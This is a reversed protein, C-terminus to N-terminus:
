KEGEKKPTAIKFLHALPSALRPYLVYIFFLFLGINVLASGIRLVLLSAVSGGQLFYLAYAMFVCDIVIGNAFFLLLTQYFKPRTRPLLLDFLLGTLVKCLTIPLYPPYFFISSLVDILLYTVAGYPCGLLLSVLLVSLASFDLRVPLDGFVQKSLIALVTGIAVAMATVTLRRLADLSHPNKYKSM